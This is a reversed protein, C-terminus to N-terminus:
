TNNIADQLSPGTERHFRNSAVTATGPICKPKFIVGAGAFDISTMDANKRWVTDSTFHQASSM